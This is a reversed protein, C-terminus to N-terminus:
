ESDSEEQQVAQTAPPPPPLAYPWYMPQSQPPPVMTMKSVIAKVGREVGEKIAAAQVLDRRKSRCV